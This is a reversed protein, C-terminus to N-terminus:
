TRRALRRRERKGDAPDNWDAAVTAPFFQSKDAAAGDFYDVSAAWYNRWQDSCLDRGIDDLYRWQYSVDGPNRTSHQLWIWACNVSGHHCSWHVHMREYRLASSRPLGAEIGVGCEVARADPRVRYEWGPNSQASAVAVFSLYCVIAILIKRM